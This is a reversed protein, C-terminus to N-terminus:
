FELLDNPVIVRYTATAEASYEDQHEAPIEPATIAVRRPFVEAATSWPSDYNGGVGDLADDFPPQGDYEGGFQSPLTITTTPSGPPTSAPPAPSVVPDNVTGGGQSVALVVSTIASGDDISWEDLLSYVKAQCSISRGAVEDEARITQDITVGLTDATPLQFSLRNERHAGLVQVRAISVGVAIAADLRDTERLDVVWDGLADETADPEPAVFTASEFEQQRDSQTEATIRDRRIVEGAQIISTPSEVRLKYTETVSQSWRRAATWSGGLLLRLGEVSNIWPTPPSCYVGTPPLEIWAAGSLIAPYGAGSCASTVMDVTPLDTTQTRWLCFSSDISTGAIDPHMWVFDQHRERLRTFRYDLELEVVNIRESLEVPIWDMSQDIVSGAPFVWAPATAAWNTVQLNGAVSKQLSAPRSSMREQAYDWRSRGEPEEFVDASWLGGALADVQAVTLAEIADQLRDSCDCSILREQMNYQPRIVQGVFRLHEVWGGSWHRYYIEVAKGIYDAPNVPGDDLSIVFDALTAAGEEREIRVSGTLNESVDVGGLMLRVDWLVSVVPAITVAPLTVSSEAGNLALGNLTSGNLM